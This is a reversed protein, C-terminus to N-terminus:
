LTLRWTRALLRIQKLVLLFVLANFDQFGRSRVEVLGLFLDPSFEILMELICLTLSTNLYVMMVEQIGAEDM